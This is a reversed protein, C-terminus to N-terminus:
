TLWPLRNETPYEEFSVEMTGEGTWTKAGNTDSDNHIVLGYFMGNQSRRCKEPVGRLIFTQTNSGGDSATFILQGVNKYYHQLHKFNAYTNRLLRTASTARYDVQGRIDPPGVTTSDFSVLSASTNITDWVLADYFSLIIVYVDLIMSNTASTNKIAVKVQLNSIRSGNMVKDTQYNNSATASPPVDNTVGDNRVFRLIKNASYVNPALSAISALGTSYMHRKLGSGLTGYNDGQRKVARTSDLPATSYISSKRSFQPM